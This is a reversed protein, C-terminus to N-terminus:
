LITTDIVRELNQSFMQRIQGATLIEYIDYKFWSTDKSIDDPRGIYNIITVLDGHYLTSTKGFFDSFSPFTSLDILEFVLLGGSGAQGGDAFGDSTYTLGKIKVRAIEGSLFRKM